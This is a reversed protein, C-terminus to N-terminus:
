RRAVVHQFPVAELGELGGAALLDLCLATPIMQFQHKFHLSEEPRNVEEALGVPEPVWLQKKSM